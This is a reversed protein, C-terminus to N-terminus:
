DSDGAVCAGHSPNVPRLKSYPYGQNTFLPFSTPALTDRHTRFTRGSWPAAGNGLARPWGM